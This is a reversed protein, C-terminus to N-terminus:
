RTVVGGSQTLGTRSGSKVPMARYRYYAACTGESSVMCAGIPNEPTCSKGFLPCDPPVKVGRLVSPCLCRPDEASEGAALEFVRSADFEGFEKRIVLGSDPIRGFGRWTAGTREFVRNMVELAKPNGEPRVARSYQCELRPQNEVRQILLMWIAQLIDVPEFGAVVCSLSFEEPLFEYPRTGIITSVHGPLILGDIDVEPGQALTRLAPPILKHASLVFFNKLRNRRAELISAAVTPATTEFGIGLFCVRREPEMRALEVAELGSYVVRVDAGSSRAKELSLKSGPVRVLDGFTAVTVKYATALEIAQDIYRRPTVCIPCGPGSLLQVSSPLAEPIGARHIAMTHTGCVEMLRAKDIPLQRIKETLTRARSASRFEQLLKM